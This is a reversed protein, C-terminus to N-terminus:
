NNSEFAVSGQNFLKAILEIASQSGTLRPDIRIRDKACLQEALTATEHTCEFYHGDVFLLRSGASQRIFSFRSAPNRSLPAGDALHERLAEIEIPQEPQWDMDPYKPASAYQGFWRAFADRDLMKETVMAHLKAIAQASIEGPNEQPQSDPDAYRDDDSM